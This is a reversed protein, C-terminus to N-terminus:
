RQSIATIATKPRITRSLGFPRYSKLVTQFMAFIENEAVAALLRKDPNRADLHLEVYNSSNSGIVRLTIQLSKQMGSMINFFHSNQIQLKTFNVLGLIVNEVKLVDYSYTNLLSYGHPTTSESM